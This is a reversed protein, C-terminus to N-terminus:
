FEVKKEALPALEITGWCGIQGDVIVVLGDINPIQRGHEIAANIDASSRVRNALATAAADALAASKSVVCVADARGLSLSHGITGSSTCVALPQDRAPIRLGFRLSLASRGAFIGACVDQRTQIFTDGGNEVIVEDTHAMLATGVQQAMAGAVAAMPGVAAEASAAVMDAVLAPAAGDVPWPRLTNAFDPHQEIYAELYRRQELVIERAIPRLEKPAHILLDTEKVIVEFATLRDVEVLQRYTRQQYM